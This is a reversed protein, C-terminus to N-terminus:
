GEMTGVVLLKIEGRDGSLKFHEVAESFVAGDSRDLNIYACNQEKGKIKVNVVDWNHDAMIKKQNKTLKM